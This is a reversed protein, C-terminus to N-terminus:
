PNVKLAVEGHIVRTKYCNPLVMPKDTGLLFFERAFHYSQPNRERKHTLDVNICQRCREIISSILTSVLTYRNKELGPM